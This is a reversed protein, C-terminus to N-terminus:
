TLTIKLSVFRPLFLGALTPHHLQHSSGIKISYTRCLVKMLLGFGLDLPFM